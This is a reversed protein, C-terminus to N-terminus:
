SVTSATSADGFRSRLDAIVVDFERRRDVKCEIKRNGYSVIVTAEDATVAFVVCPLRM